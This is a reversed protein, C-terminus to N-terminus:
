GSFERVYLLAWLGPFITGNPLACINSCYQWKGSL